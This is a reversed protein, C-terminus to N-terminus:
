DVKALSVDSAAVSKISGADAAKGHHLQGTVQAGLVMEMSSYYVDGTIRAKKALEIYESAHIDGVVEGNIIVNPAVIQGEIRGKESVLVTAKTDKEAVINGKVTGGIHIAGSVRLDGVVETKASILTDYDVDGVNKSGFM